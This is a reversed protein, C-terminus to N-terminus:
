SLLYLFLAILLIQTVLIAPLGLYFKPQKTKHRFIFMGLISGVSGGIAAILLLHAEPTRWDNKQAKRKDLGMSFFGALNLAILVITIIQLYMSIM